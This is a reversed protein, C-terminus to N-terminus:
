FSLYHSNNELLYIFCVSQLLYSYCFYIDINQGKVMIKCRLQIGALCVTVFCFSGKQVIGYSEVSSIWLPCVFVCVPFTFTPIDYVHNHHKHSICRRLPDEFATIRWLFGVCFSIPIRNHTFYFTEPFRHGYSIAQGRCLNIVKGKSQLSIILNETM